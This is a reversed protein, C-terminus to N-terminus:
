IMIAHIITSDFGSSLAETTNSRDEIIIGSMETTLGYHNIKAYIRNNDHVSSTM